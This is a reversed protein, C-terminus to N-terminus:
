NYQLFDSSADITGSIEMQNGKTYVIKTIYDDYSTMFTGSSSSTGRWGNMTLYYRKEAVATSISVTAANGNSCYAVMSCAHPQGGSNKVDIDVIVSRTYIAYPSGDGDMKFGNTLELTTSRNPFPIIQRYGMRPFSHAIEDQTWTRTALIGNEEPLSLTYNSATTSLAELTTGTGPTGGTGFDSPGARNFTISAKDPCLTIWDDADNSFAYLAPVAM